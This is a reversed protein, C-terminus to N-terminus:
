QYYVGFYNMLPNRSLHPPVVHGVACRAGSEGINLCDFIQISVQFKHIPLADLFEHAIFFTFEEPVTELIQHWYVPPGYKTIAEKYCGGGRESEEDNNSDAKNTNSDSQSSQTKNSDSTASSDKSDSTAGGTLTKEQIETLKPSVEVLHLSVADKIGDFQSFM